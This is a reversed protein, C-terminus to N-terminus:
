GNNAEQWERIRAIFRDATYSANGTWADRVMGRLTEDDPWAPKDHGYAKRLAPYAARLGREVMDDCAYPLDAGLKYAGVAESLDPEPPLADLKAQLAAIEKERSAIHWQAGEIAKRAAVIEAKLKERETM